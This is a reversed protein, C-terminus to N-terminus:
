CFCPPKTTKKSTPQMRRVRRFPHGGGPHRGLELGRRFRWPHSGTFIGAPRVPGGARGRPRVQKGLPREGLLRAVDWPGTWTGHHYNRQWGDDEISPVPYNRDSLQELLSQQPERERLFLYSPVIETAGVLCARFVGSPVVHAM